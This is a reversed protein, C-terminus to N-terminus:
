SEMVDLVVENLLRCAEVAEERTMSPGEVRLRTAMLAPDAQWPRGAAQRYAAPVHGAPVPVYRLEGELRVEGRDAVTWTGLGEGFDADFKEDVGSPDEPLEDGARVRDPELEGLHVAGVAAVVVVEEVVAPCFALGPADPRGDLDAGLDVRLALDTVREPEPESGRM